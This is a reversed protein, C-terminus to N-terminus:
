VDREKLQAINRRITEILPHNGPYLAQCMKLAQEYYKLAEKPQGLSSYVLGISNLTAAIEPHNKGKFIQKFMNLAQNLNNLAEEYKKLSIYVKGLSQVSSAIDKHNGSYLQGRMRYAKKCYDLAKENEEIALYVSGINDLSNAVDPHNKEAYIVKGMELAQEYYKLAEKPQGLSSYVLGISNLPVVILPHNGPYIAEYMKLSQKHYELAKAYEGLSFYILGIINLSNAVDPHNKEAYIAKWMKLAQKLYELAKAYGGLRYYVVGTNHLSLAVYPHNKAAYIVKWMKLARKLCKLAKPYKCLRSYANSINNLSGAVDPHNGPYITKRMEFAQKYYELAKEYESLRLCITGLNNLSQAVDPHNGPYITKRMELARKYYKLAKRYKGSRSYVLGINNLSNAVDPHNKAAYTDEGMKIAEKLYELAKAYESLSSYVSGINSLSTAIDPHNGSCLVKWMKLAQECYKLSEQNQGLDEYVMGINNLSTAIGPHNELYMTQYMKLAQECYKLSEEYQGLAECVTGVNCLSQALEPHSGICVSEGTQFQYDKYKKQKILLDTHFNEKAKAYNGISKYADGLNFELNFDSCEQENFLNKFHSLTAEMHPLLLRALAIDEMIKNGEPYIRKISLAIQNLIEKSELEAQKNRLIDQLLRHMSLQHREGDIRMFSYRGIHGKIDDWLLNIPENKAGKLMTKLLLDPIISADLWSAQKLTALARPCDAELAKFNMNFTIWVPEHKPHLALTPDNMLKPQYKLYLSLYNAISTKKEVMYAAAQTLALPLRGLTNVLELLKPDEKQYGTIKVILDIAEGEEMVDIDVKQHAPWEVENRTTILIHHKGQEPLLGELQKAGPVNDYILLCDKQRELWRKVLMAQEEIPMEKPYEIEHRKALDIYQTYLGNRDEAHFWARLTYPISPYLYYYNALETKGAGGLGHATLTLIQQKSPELYSVIKRWLNPREIFNPTISPRQFQEGHTSYFNRPDTGQSKILVGIIEANVASSHHTAQQAQLSSFDKDRELDRLRRRHYGKKLEQNVGLDELMEASPRANFSHWLNKYAEELSDMSGEMKNVQENYAWDLLGQLMDIYGGERHDRVTSYKDYVEPFSTKMSGSILLPYIRSYGYVNQDQIPKQSIISLETKVAHLIPSYHKELLSKTGVLIVHNGDHYQGMFNYISNGAKNDRVDMVAQIGAAKLHDYLVSLFPQVWYEDEKHKQSPWAYSIYCVPAPKGKETLLQNIKTLHEKLLSQLNENTVIYSQEAYLRKTKSELAVTEESSMELIKDIAEELPVISKLSEKKLINALSSDYPRTFEYLCNATNKILLLTAKIASYFYEPNADAQYERIKEINKEIYELYLRAEKSKELSMSLKSLVRLLGESNYSIAPLTGQRTRKVNTPRQHETEELGAIQRPITTTTSVSLSTAVGTDNSTLTAQIHEIDERSLKTLRVINDIDKGQKLLTKARALMRERMKRAKDLEEIEERSLETVEMINEITDGDELLDMALAINEQKTDDAEEKEGRTVSGGKEEKDDKEKGKNSKMGGLNGKEGIRAWGQKLDIEIKSGIYREQNKKGLKNLYRDDIEIQILPLDYAIKDKDVVKARWTAKSQYFTVEHGQRTAFERDALFQQKSFDVEIAKPLKTPLVINERTTPIAPNYCSQIFLSSLLIRAILRNFSTYTGQM